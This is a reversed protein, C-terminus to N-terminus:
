TSPFIYELLILVGNTGVSYKGVSYFLLNMTLLTPRGAPPSALCHASDLLGLLRLQAVSPQPRSGALKKWELGPLTALSQPLFLIDLTVPSAFTLYSLTVYLLLFELCLM